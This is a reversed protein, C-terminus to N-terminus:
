SEKRDTFLAAAVARTFASGAADAASTVFPNGRIGPHPIPGTAALMHDPSYLFVRGRGANRRWAGKAGGIEHAKAGGIFFHRFWAGRKGGRPGVVVAGSRGNRASVSRALLGGAKGPSAKARSRM